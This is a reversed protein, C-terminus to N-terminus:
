ASRSIFDVNWAKLTVAGGSGLNLVLLKNVDLGEPMPTEMNWGTALSYAARMVGLHAVVLADGPEKAADALFAEVREHVEAVSEGGPPRFAQKLGARAFAEPGEKARVDALSLGEWRGWNQEVLREDLLPAALGMAEATQRARVMPSAYVRAQDFPPPPRLRRMKELGEDSLPIDVSGQIRGQANWQTPGHRVFGILSV